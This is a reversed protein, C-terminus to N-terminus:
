ATEQEKFEPFQKLTETWTIKGEVLDHILQPLQDIEARIQRMTDRERLTATHPKKNVTDFDITVGFPIAIQDTRAYRRGISGSSEDIKHQVGLKALQESLQKIFPTFEEKGSLPLLSCKYPAIVAPLTLYTRAEDGERINFNHELVAYMIRGIGFSPEIVNPVIEEVHVKEVGEKFKVLSAQIRFQKEGVALTEEQDKELRQKLDRAEELSLGALKAMIAKAEGKFEKGLEAKNPVCECVEVMKPESLLKEAVMRAGTAKAHQTLDFCSRDACGVCEVWGYSTHCEADWCDCAYHAMENSLHQRFRLREPDVGVKVLFQHIRVMFYALTENAIIKQTVADHVRMSHPSRGDMQDCASYLKLSYDKVRDYKHFTDKEAPDVFYEIEAMTFERVRLLGSRPSIENRFSSGIQAVGFPIRGQNFQLLRPFNVFIGQATEPRLYGKYHGTPGISTPFMLNFQQPESLDNNTIPSKIGYRTIIDQLEHVGMNDLVPLIKNIEVKEAEATKKNHLKGELFGEILHDARFCEGTKLDKVMFDTFREVHGSVQLVQEPTLMSCDVELLQEEVVFLQRWITLMNNKLACGMPGFDYLGQVGGYISFSHDFFFRQKLLDELKTRDFVPNKPALEAEKEELQHKCAKLDTVAKKIEYEDAQESKLKRVIDGQEKVKARYPALIQEIDM